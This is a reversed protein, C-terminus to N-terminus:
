YADESRSEKGEEIKDEEGAPLQIMEKAKGTWSSVFNFVDNATDLQFYMSADGNIHQMVSNVYTKIEYVSNFASKPLVGINTFDAVAQILEDADVKGDTDTYQAVRAKFANYQEQTISKENFLDSVKKKIGEIM